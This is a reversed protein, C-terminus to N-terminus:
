AMALWRFINYEMPINPWDFLSYASKFCKHLYNTQISMYTSIFLMAYLCAHISFSCYTGAQMVEILEICNSLLGTCTSLDIFSM